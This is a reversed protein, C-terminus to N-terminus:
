KSETLMKHALKVFDVPTIIGILKNDQTVPLCGYKNEIFFEAAMDLDTEPSVTLIDKNMANSIPTQQEKKSIQQTGFQSVLHFAHRLYERQTLMGVCEGEDNVIPINRINKEQMLAKAKALSDNERLTILNTIMLDAVTRM